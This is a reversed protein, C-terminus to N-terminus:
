TLVPISRIDASFSNITIFIILISIILDILVHCSITVFRKSYLIKSHFRWIHMILISVLVQLNDFADRTEINISASWNSIFPQCNGQYAYLNPLM